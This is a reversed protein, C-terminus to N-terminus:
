WWWGRIITKTVSKPQGNGFAVGIAKCADVISLKFAQSDEYKKMQFDWERKADAQLKSEIKKRLNIVEQYNNAKPNIQNIITAVSNAGTINPQKMWAIQAQQLLAVAESNIKQIYIDAAKQQCRLFCENCINPVSVLRFIAENMKDMKALDEAQVLIKECDNTYFTVIKEKASAIMGQLEKDRPNLRQFAAIFAKNENIGIGALSISHSEYIRNEIIDGIIFAVEMKQSIRVPTTAVVDKSIINVKATLVFRETYGNDVIGNITLAHKLKTELHQVAEEPIDRDAVLTNISIRDENSTQAKHEFIFSCFCFIFLCIKKM